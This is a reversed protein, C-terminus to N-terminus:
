FDPIVEKGWLEELYDIGNINKCIVGSVSQLIRTVAEKALDDMM